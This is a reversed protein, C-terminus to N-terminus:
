ISISYFYIHIKLIYEIKGTLNYMGQAEQNQPIYLRVQSILHIFSLCTFTNRFVEKWQLLM